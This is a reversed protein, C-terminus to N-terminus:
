RSPTIAGARLRAAALRDIASRSLPLTTGRCRSRTREVPFAAPPRRLHGRATSFRGSPAARDHWPAFPSSPSGSASRNRASAPRKGAAPSPPHKGGNTRIRWPTVFALTGLYNQVVGRRTARMVKASSPIPHYGLAAAAADRPDAHIEGGEGRREPLPIRRFRLGGRKECGRSADAGHPTPVVSNM